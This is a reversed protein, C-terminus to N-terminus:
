TPGAPMDRRRALGHVTYHLAFHAADLRPLRARSQMNLHRLAAISATKAPLICGMCQADWLCRRSKVKLGTRDTLNYIVLFIFYL